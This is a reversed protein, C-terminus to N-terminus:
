LGRVRLDNLLRQEIETRDEDFLVLLRERDQEALAALLHKKYSPTRHKGETLSYHTLSRYCDTLCMFRLAEKVLFKQPSLNFITEFFERHLALWGVVDHETLLTDLKKVQKNLFTLEAKTPWKVSALLERELVHRIRYLQCAEDYSFKAVFFGRNQDHAVVGEVTLRKLAERLPVRSTGFQESLEMQRLQVGPALVGCIVMERVKDAISEPLNLPKVKKM